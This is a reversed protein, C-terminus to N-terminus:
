PLPDKKATRSRSQRVAALTSLDCYVVVGLQQICVEEDWDDEEGSDNASV